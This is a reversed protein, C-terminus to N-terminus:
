WGIAVTIRSAPACAGNWSQPHRDAGRARGPVADRVVM